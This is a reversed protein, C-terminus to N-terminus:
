LSTTANKISMTTSSSRGCPIRDSTALALSTAAHAFGHLEVDRRQQDVEEDVDHAHEAEVELEAHRSDQVEGVDHEDRNAGVGTGHQGEPRVRWVVELVVHEARVPWEGQGNEGGAGGGAQQRQDHADDAQAPQAAIVLRHHHEHE